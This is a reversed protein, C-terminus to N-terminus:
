ICSEFMDTANSLGMALINYIYIGVSILMVTWIKSVEDLPIHLFGKTSDFVAFHVADKLLAIIKELTRANCVPRVTHPNLDTPDLCIWLKGNPKKVVVFSNLWEPANINADDLKSLIGQSVMNDLEQRFKDKLALPM